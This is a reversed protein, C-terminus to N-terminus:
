GHSDAWREAEDIEFLSRRIHEVAREGNGGLTGIPAHFEMADEVHQAAWELEIRANGLNPYRQDGSMSAPPPKPTIGGGPGPLTHEDAFSIAANVEEIAAYAERDAAAGHGGLGGRHAHAREAAQIHSRAQSLAEQARHLNPYRDARVTVCGLSVALLLCTVSLRM